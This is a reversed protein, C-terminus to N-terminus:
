DCLEPQTIHLDGRGFLISPSRWKACMIAELKGELLSKRLDTLTLSAFSFVRETTASDAPIALFQLVM